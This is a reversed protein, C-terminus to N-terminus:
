VWVFLSYAQHEAPGLSGLGKPPRLRIISPMHYAHPQVMRCKLKFAPPLDKQHTQKDLSRLLSSFLKIEFQTGNNFLVYNPIGYPIVCHNLFSLAVYPSPEEATLIAGAQVSYPGTVVEVFQNGQSSKTFPGALDIAVVELPGTVPFLKLPRQHCYATGERPCTQCNNGIYYVKIVM